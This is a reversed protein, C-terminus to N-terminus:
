SELREEFVIWRIGEVVDRMCEGVRQLRIRPEVVRERSLSLARSQRKSAGAQAHSCADVTADVDKAPRKAHKRKSPNRSTKTSHIETLHEFHHETRHSLM